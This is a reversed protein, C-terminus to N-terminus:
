VHSTYQAITKIGRNRNQIEEYNQTDILESRDDSIEEYLIKENGHPLALEIQEM